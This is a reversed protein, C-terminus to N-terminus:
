VGLSAQIGAVGGEKFSWGWSGRSGKGESPSVPKEARGQRSSGEPREWSPRGQPHLLCDPCEWVRPQAQPFPAPSSSCGGNDRNVWTHGCAAQWSPGRSSGAAQLRSAPQHSGGCGTQPGGGLQAQLCGQPRFQGWTPACSTDSRAQPQALCGIPTCYIHGTFFSTHVLTYPPLTRCSQAAPSVHMTDPQMGKQGTAYAYRRTYIHTQTHTHTQTYIHAQLYTHRHTHAYTQSSIRTQLHVNTDTYAHRHTHIQTLTQM